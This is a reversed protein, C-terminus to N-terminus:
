RRKVRAGFLALEVRRLRATSCSYLALQARVRRTPEPRREADKPTEVIWIMDQGGSRRFLLVADLPNASTKQGGAM